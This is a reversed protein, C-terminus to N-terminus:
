IIAVRHVATQADRLWVTAASSLRATVAPGYGLAAVAADLDAFAQRELRGFKRLQRDFEQETADASLVQSLMMLDLSDRVAPRLMEAMDAPNDYHDLMKVVQAPVTRTLTDGM